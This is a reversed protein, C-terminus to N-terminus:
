ESFLQNPNLNLQYIHQRIKAAWQKDTYKKDLSEYPIPKGFTIKLKKNGQKYFEDVLYLMEINAKIGLKKRIRALRYFFLSNEGSIHTPIINREYRKCKTIFTKKWELDAITKKNKRSVLGAPFFLLANDSEFSKNFIKINEANSGHKNVPIFFERLGAVHLLIDNVPFLIDKRAKGIAQILAIGDLGGLPHNSAVLIRDSKSINELGIIETEGAFENMIDDIFPLGHRGETRILFDNIAEEHLIRRLYEILFNPLVKLLTTSKEGIIRRVNILELDSKKNKEM